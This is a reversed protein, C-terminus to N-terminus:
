PTTYDEIVGTLSTSYRSPAKANLGAGRKAFARWLARYDAIDRNKAIALLADRAELYTPNDPVFKLGAVLYDLMRNQATTFSLRKSDNLLAVYAEWLMVGWVEGSNHSESNDSGKMNAFPAVPITKPLAVGNSIYKLTLPNRQMDTSYPYRRIGYPYEAIQSSTVYRSIAYPAQFSDNGSLLRDNEQVITILALFDSWGEAMSDGQKNNLWALRGSLFHAWEHIILTSDLASNYDPTKQLTMSVNVTSRSAIAMKLIEGVSKNIGLVPITIQRNFNPDGSGSMSVMNSTVNNAILVGIAGADQANKVKEAFLCLGRDILAIAGFLDASNVFPIECGDNKPTVKDAVLVVKKNQLNFQQPGFDASTAPYSYQKGNINLMLPRTEDNKSKWPHLEMVASVGDEPTTMSANDTKQYDSIEVIMPDGGLGGRRFNDLQGNGSRENFGHDYLWDHMFNTVYFAHTIAAQLQEPHQADDMVDFQYSYDFMSPASVSGYIDSASFGNPPNLDAYARVNNGRTKTSNAPLWPDCTSIPGCTLSILNSTITTLQNPIEKTLPLLASNRYPSDYPFHTLSDAWVRYTFPTAHRTLNRRLLVAGDARSIVYAFAASPSRTNLELYYAAILDDGNPYWIEKIRVPKLIDKHIGTVRYWQYPAQQRDFILEEPALIKNRLHFFATAIAQSTNLQQEQASRKSSPSYPVLNGSIAILNSSSDLLVKIHKKFVEKGDIEQHFAVIHGGESLPHIATLKASAETASNLKYRSAYRAIHRRASQEINEHTKQTLTASAPSSDGWLFTPLGTVADFHSSPIVSETSEASAAFILFLYTATANIIVQHLNSKM